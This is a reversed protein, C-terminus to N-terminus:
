QQCEHKEAWKKWYVVRAQKLLVKEFMSAAGVIEPHEEGTPPKLKTWALAHVSRPVSALVTDIWKTFLARLARWRTHVKLPEIKEETGDASFIPRFSTLM